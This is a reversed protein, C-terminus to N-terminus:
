LVVLGPASAGHLGAVADLAAGQEGAAGHEGQDRGIGAHGVRLREVTDGKLGVPTRLGLMAAKVLGDGGANIAAVADFAVDAHAPRLLIRRLQQEGSPTSKM